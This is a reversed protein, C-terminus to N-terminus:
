PSSASPGAELANRESSSCTQVLRSATLHKMRLLAVTLSTGFTCHSADPLANSYAIAQINLSQKLYCTM